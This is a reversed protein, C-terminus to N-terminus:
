HRRRCSQRVQGDLFRPALRYRVKVTALFILVNNVSVMGSRGKRGGNLDAIKLDLSRARVCTDYGAYYNFGADGSNLLIAVQPVNLNSGVVADPRGDNNLDGLALANADLQTSFNQVPGFIGLGLGLNVSITKTSSNATVLDVKSDANIDAAVM